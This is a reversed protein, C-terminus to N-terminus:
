FKIPLNYQVAVPKGNQTGPKWDPMANILRLAEEDCGAGIGKLIKSDRVKGDKYVVFSVYVIGELHKKAAEKPYKLNSKIYQLLGAEKGPFEPMVEIIHSTDAKVNCYKVLLKESDTDGLEKAKQWDNCASSDNGLKKYCAGRNYYSDMLKYKSNISLSFYNIAEAYEKLGFKDVGLNYNESEVHNQAILINISLITITFILVAKIM